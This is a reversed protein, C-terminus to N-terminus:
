PKPRRRILSAIGVAAALTIVALSYNRVPARSNAKLHNTAEHLEKRIEGLEDRVVKYHNETALAAGARPPGAPLIAVIVALVTFLTTLGPDHTMIAFIAALALMAVALYWVFVWTPGRRIGESSPEEEKM